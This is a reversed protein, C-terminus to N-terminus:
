ARSAAIRQEYERFMDAVPGRGVIEGREMLFATTCFKEILAQSHSALVLLNPKQMFAELRREAREYFGADGAGIGEDILLIEPARVSSTAVAFQLRTLMGASYTRVPLTLYEGLETFEEIEPMADEIQAPTMDLLLGLMRINEYGTTDVDLGLSVDFIPSVKGDIRASGRTPHYIGAMVRLLTSKGSGNHGILGVRDGPGLDADIGKLASVMVRNDATLGMRGGLLRPLTAPHFLRRRQADFIQFDVDVGQLVIKSM